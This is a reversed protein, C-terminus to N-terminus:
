PRGRRQQSPSTFMGKRTRSMVAGSARANEANRASARTLSGHFVIADNGVEGLSQAHVGPKIFIVIPVPVAGVNMQCQLARGIRPKVGINQFIQRKITRNPYHLPYGSQRASFVKEDVVRLGDNAWPIEPSPRKM